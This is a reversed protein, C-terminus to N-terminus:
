FNLEIKKGTDNVKFYSGNEILLAQSKGTFKEKPHKVDVRIVKGDFDSTVIKDVITHGIIVHNVKYYALVHDIYDPPMDDYSSGKVLGRYWLPGKSGFILNTRKDEEPHKRLNKRINKRIIENIENISLGTNMMEESIGGHLFLNDGIKEIANKTRIWQVLENANSMLFAYAEQDNNPIGSVLRALAKYKEKVYRIEFSLNMVDHNGLIFHVAGGKNKAQQELKYLLWLSPLVETGRDFMDGCIVLHGDGYIWNYDKDMVKNGLLLSYFTNFNGEIDSTVFIKDQPEYVDNPVKYEKTLTFSFQDGDSNNVRSIFEQGKSKKTKATNIFFSDNKRQEVSIITLSDNHSYIYPGDLSHLTYADTEEGKFFTTKNSACGMVFCLIIGYIITNRKM